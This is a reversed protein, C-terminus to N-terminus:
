STLMQVQDDDQEQQHHRHHQEPARPALLAQQPLVSVLAEPEKAWSSLVVVPDGPDTPISM